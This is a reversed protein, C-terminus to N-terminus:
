HGGRLKRIYWRNLFGKVLKIRYSREPKLLFFFYHKRLRDSMTEKEPGMIRKRIMRVARSHIATGTLEEFPGPLEQQFLEQLLGLVVGIVRDLGYREALMRIKRHDVPVNDLYNSIDVLWILRFFRHKIGHICLYLFTHEPDLTKIKEGAIELTTLNELFEKEHDGSILMRSDIGHHLEVYVRSTSNFLGIDGKYKLYYSFKARDIKPYLVEYGSDLLLDLASEFHVPPVFLDLDNYQRM